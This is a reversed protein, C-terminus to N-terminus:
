KPKLLPIYPAYFFGTDWEPPPSESWKLIFAVEDIDHQFVYADHTPSTYYRGPMITNMWTIVSRHVSRRVGKIMVYYAMSGKYGVIEHM